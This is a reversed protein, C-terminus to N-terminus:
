YKEQMNLNAEWYDIGKCKNSGIDDGIIKSKEFQKYWLISGEMGIEKYNM